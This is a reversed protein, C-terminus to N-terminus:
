FNVRAINSSVLEIHIILQVEICCFFIILSLLKFTSDALASFSDGLTQPHSLSSVFIRNLHM